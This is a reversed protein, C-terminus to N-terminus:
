GIKEVAGLVASHFPMPETAGECGTACLRVQHWIDSAHQSSAVSSPRPQRAALAAAAPPSTTAKMQIHQMLLRDVDSPSTHQLFSCGITAEPGPSGGMGAAKASRHGATAARRGGTHNVANNVTNSGRNPSGPQQASGRTEVALPFAAAVEPATLPSPRVRAGLLPRHSWADLRTPSLPASAVFPLASGVSGGVAPLTSSMSACHMQSNGDERHLATKPGSSVLLENSATLDDPGPSGGSFSAATQRTRLPSGTTKPRSSAPGIVETIGARINRDTMSSVPPISTLTFFSPSDVSENAMLRPAESPMSQRQFPAAVARQTQQPASAMPCPPRLSHPKLPEGASPVLLPQAGGVVALEQRSGASPLNRLAVAPPVASTSIHSYTHFRHGEARLDETSHPTAAPPTVLYPATPLRTSPRAVVFHPLPGYAATLAVGSASLATSASYRRNFRQVQHQQPHFRLRSAALDSLLTLSAAPPASADPLPRPAQSPASMSSSSARSPPAPLPARAAAASAVKRHSRWSRSWRRWHWHRRRSLFKDEDGGTAPSSSLTIGKLM